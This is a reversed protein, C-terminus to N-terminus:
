LLCFDASITNKNGYNFNSGSLDIFLAFKSCDPKMVFDVQEGTSHVSFNGNNGTREAVM